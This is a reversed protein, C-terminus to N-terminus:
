RDHAFLVRLVPFPVRDLNDETVFYLVVFNFIIVQIIIVIVEFPYVRLLGTLLNLIQAQVELMLNRLKVQTFLDTSISLQIIIGESFLLSYGSKVICM